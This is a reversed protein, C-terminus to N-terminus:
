PTAPAAEPTATAEAGVPPEPCPPSAVSGEEAAILIHEVYELVSELSLIKVHDAEFGRVEVADDQAENLLVSNLDVSGDGESGVQYGFLLHHPVKGKLRTNFVTQLFESGPVVDHWSPVPVSLARVGKEAM